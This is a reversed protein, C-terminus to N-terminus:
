KDEKHYLAFFHWSNPNRFNLKIAQNLTKAGEEKEGLFSMALGKLAM